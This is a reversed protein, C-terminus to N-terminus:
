EGLFIKQYNVDPVGFWGFLCEFLALVDLKLGKKM